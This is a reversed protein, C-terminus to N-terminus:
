RSAAINRQIQSLQDKLFELSQQLTELKYKAKRLDECNGPSSVLLGKNQGENCYQRFKGLEDHTIRIEDQTRDIKQQLAQEHARLIALEAAREQQEGNKPAPLDNMRPGDYKKAPAAQAKEKAHSAPHEKPLATRPKGKEKVAAAKRVPTKGSRREKRKGSQLKSTLEDREQSLDAITKR